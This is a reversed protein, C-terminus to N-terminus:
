WLSGPCEQSLPTNRTEETKPSSKKFLKTDCVNISNFNFYLFWRKGMGREGGGGGRKKGWRKRKVIMMM